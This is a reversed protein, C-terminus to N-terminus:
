AKRRQLMRAAHGHCCCRNTPQLGTQKAPSAAALMRIEMRVLLARTRPSLLSVPIGLHHYPLPSHLCACPHTQNTGISPVPNAPTASHELLAISLSRHPKLGGLCPCAISRSTVQSNRTLNGTLKRNSQASPSKGVHALIRIRFAFDLRNQTPM